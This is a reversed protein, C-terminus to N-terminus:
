IKNSQAFCHFSFDSMKFERKRKKIKWLLFINILLNTKRPDNERDGRSGFVRNKFRQFTENM